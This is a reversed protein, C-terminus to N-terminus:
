PPRGGLLSPRAKAGAGPLHGRPGQPNGSHHAWIVLFVPWPVLSRPSPGSILGAASPPWRGRGEQLSAGRPGHVLLEGLAAPAPSHLTESSPSVSQPARAPSVRRMEDKAESVPQIEVVTVGPGPSLM